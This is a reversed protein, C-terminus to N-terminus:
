AAGAMANAIEVGTAAGAKIAADLAASGPTIKMFADQATAKALAANANNLDTATIKSGIDVKTTAGQIGPIAAARVDVVNQLTQAMIAVGLRIPTLAAITDAIARSGQPVM